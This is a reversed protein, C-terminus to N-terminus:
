QKDIALQIRQQRDELRNSLGVILLKDQRIGLVPCLQPFDDTSSLQDVPHM